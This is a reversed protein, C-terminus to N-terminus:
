EFVVDCLLRGESDTLVEVLEDNEEDYALCVPRFNEDRQAISPSTTASSSTDQIEVLLYKTIPDTRLMTIDQSADNTVAAGVTRFNEDREIIENAM